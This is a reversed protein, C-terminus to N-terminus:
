VHARGIELDDKRMAHMHGIMHTIYEIKSKPDDKVPRSAPHLSDQALTGEEIAEVNEVKKTM